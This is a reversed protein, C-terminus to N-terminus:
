CAYALVLTHLHTYPNNAHTLAFLLTYTDTLMSVTHILTNLLTYSNTLTHIYKYTDKRKYQQM